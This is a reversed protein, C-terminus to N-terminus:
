LCPTGKVLWQYLAEADILINKTDTDKGRAALQLATRRCDQKFLTEHLENQAESQLTIVADNLVKKTNDM